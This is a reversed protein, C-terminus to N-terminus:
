ASKRRRRAGIAVLGLGVGLFGFSPVESGTTVVSCGGSNGTGGGGGFGSGGGDTTAAGGDDDGSGSSGGGSSSGFGGSSGGSSSGSAGSDDDDDGGSSGSGGSGGSSGSGGGDDSSGGDDASGGSGSGSSGGSGSGGSSGPNAPVGALATANPTGVGSPGDWGTGATCLKGCSSSNASDSNSDNKDATDVPYATSGLDNFGPATASAYLWGIGNAVSDTVGIRTFMAAIMPSAASTGEFGASFEGSACVAIDVTQGGSTFAAAAALDATARKACGTGTLATSQWSPMAFETSCGSTTADQGGQGDNWVGEAYGGAKKKILMTGGVSIVDPASAPYSPSAGAILGADDYTTDENLYAYDGAAVFVPVGASTYGGTFDLAGNDNSQGAKILNPDTNEPGGFSISIASAHLTKATAVAEVFSQWYNDGAENGSAESIAVVVISCDPCAASVMGMDLGTEGDADTDVSKTPSVPAGTKSDVQAFCAATGVGGPVTACKPLVSLGEIKRYGTVDSFATADALDILAVIKGNGASASPVNYATLIDSPGMGTPSGTCTAAQPQHIPLQMGPKWSAPLLRKALCHYPHKGDEKCVDEIYRGSSTAHVGLPLATSAPPSAMAPAALGATGLVSLLSLVGQSVRKVSMM